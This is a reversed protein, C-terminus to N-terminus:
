ILRMVGNFLKLFALFKELLFLDSGARVKKEM